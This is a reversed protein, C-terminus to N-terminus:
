SYLVASQSPVTVELIFLHDKHVSESNQQKLQQTVCSRTRTKRIINIMLFCLFISEDNLRSNRIKNKKTPPRDTTTFILWRNTFHLYVYIYTICTNMYTYMNMDIITHNVFTLGVMEILYIFFLMLSLLRFTLTEYEYVTQQRVGCSLLTSAFCLTFVWIILDTVKCKRSLISDFIIHQFFSCHIWIYIIYM